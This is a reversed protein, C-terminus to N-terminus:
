SPWEIVSRIADPSKMAEFGENIEAFSWRSTVMTDLRLAGSRTHAALSVVDRVLQNDGMYAGQLRRDGEILLESDITIRSGPPELGLITAVGGPALMEFALSATVPSGVAEFSHNVGGHSLRRVNELLSEDSVVVDTAGFSRARDLKEPFRDIAIIQRAGSIRAAQIAAIGVGGCGIVAVSDLPSVRAGHVVAGFGTAVCCGLLCAELDPISDDIPVAAAESVIFAEAFAGISGLSTVPHGEPDLLKPRERRRLESTRECQTSEGAVCQACSGCSPTITVVVRQGIRHSANPNGVAEIVGVVEHGLVAPLSIPLTGNVYHLDSHCLGAARSRIRVEGPLPADLLLETLQLPSGPARLVAAQIPLRSM